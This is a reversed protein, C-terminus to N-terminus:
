SIEAQRTPASIHILSLVQVTRSIGSLPNLAEHPLHLVHISDWQLHDLGSAIGSTDALLRLARYLSSKGSGNEGSVVNLTGLSLVLERLSRYNGVALTTLM